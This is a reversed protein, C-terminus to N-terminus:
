NAARDSNAVRDAYGLVLIRLWTSGCRAAAPDQVVRMLVGQEAFVRRRGVGERLNVTQRHLHDTGTRRAIGDLHEHDVTIAPDDLPWRRVSRRLLKPPTSNP